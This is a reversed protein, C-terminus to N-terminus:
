RQLRGPIVRHQCQRCAIGAPAVAIDEGVLNDSHDLTIPHHSKWQCIHQLVERNCQQLPKFVLFHYFTTFSQDRSMPACGSEYPVCNRTHVVLRWHTSTTSNTSSPAIRM